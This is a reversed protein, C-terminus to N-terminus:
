RPNLYCMKKRTSLDALKSSSAHIRTKSVCIRSRQEICRPHLSTSEKEDPHTMWVTELMALFPISEADEADKCSMSRRIFPTSGDALTPTYDLHRTVFVDPGMRVGIQGLGVIPASHHHTGMYGSRKVLCGYDAGSSLLSPSYTAILGSGQDM